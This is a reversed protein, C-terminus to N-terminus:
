MQPNQNAQILIKVHKAKNNILEQFGGEIINALPVVSSIMKEAPIARSALLELVDHFDELTYSIGGAMRKEMIVFDNINVQLPKECVAVNFVVGGPMVAAIATDLTVQLGSAEYAIGVGEVTLESVAALVPNPAAPDEALPSVVKDAGLQEAYHIRLPSIESVIVKGAGKAKLLILLALGIPGAGLVLVNQGAVFGSTRVMHWAVALPESLAAIELSVNDPIPVINAQNVTIENAFGGGPASFGYFTAQKCTNPHGALCSACPSTGYQLDAVLPIVTVKQGVSLNKVEIGLEAITGSMEHGMVVPLSTGTQPHRHGPKPAFIPGGLYEHIDSGCIGCYAVKVRVEHPRCEGDRLKAQTNQSQTSLAPKPDYSRPVNDLRIDRQNHFRLAQM